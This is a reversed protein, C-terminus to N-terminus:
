QPIIYRFRIRPLEYVVKGQFMHQILVRIGAYVKINKAFVNTYKNKAYTIVIYYSKADLELSKIELQKGGGSNYKQAFFLGDPIVKEECNEACFHSRILFSFEGRSSTYLCTWWIRFSQPWEGCFFCVFFNKRWWKEEMTEAEKAIAPIRENRNKGVGRKASWSRRWSPKWPVWVDSGILEGARQAIGRRGNDASNIEGLIHVSITKAFSSRSM